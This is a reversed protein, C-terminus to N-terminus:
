ESARAWPVWDLASVTAPISTVGKDGMVRRELALLAAPLAGTFRRHTYLMPESSGAVGIEPMALVGAITPRDVGPTALIGTADFRDVYTGGGLAARAVTRGYLAIDYQEVHTGLAGRIALLVPRDADRAQVRKDRVADEIRLEANDMYGVAPYVEITPGGAPRAPLIVMELSGGAVDMAVPHQYEPPPDHPLSSVADALARRMPKKSDNPGLSPVATLWVRWRPALARRVMEALAENRVLEAGASANIVPTAVEVYVSGDPWTAAWDLAKGTPLPAEYRLPKAGLGHLVLGVVLETLPSGFFERRLGACLLTRAEAPLAALAANAFRRCERARPATSRALYPGSAEGFEMPTDDSM